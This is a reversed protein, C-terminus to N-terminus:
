FSSDGVAKVRVVYFEGRVDEESIQGGARALYDALRHDGFLVACNPVENLGRREAVEAARASLEKRAAQVGDKLCQKKFNEPERLGNHDIQVEVMKGPLILRYLQPDNAVKYSWRGADKESAKIMRIGFDGHVLAWPTNLWPSNLDIRAAKM